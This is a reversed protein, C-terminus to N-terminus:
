APNPLAIPSAKNIITNAYPFSCWPLLMIHAESTLYSQEGPVRGQPQYVRHARCPWQIAEQGGPEQGRAPLWPGLWWCPSSSTWRRYLHYRAPWRCAAHVEEPPSHHNGHTWPSAFCSGWSRGVDPLPQEPQAHLNKYFPFLAWLLGLKM